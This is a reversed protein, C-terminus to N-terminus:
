KLAEKIRQELKAGDEARFGTHQYLVRGQADLLYATPMSPVGWGKALKGEPDKAIYFSAPFKNLFPAILAPNQDVSVAVIVLGQAAYQSQMAQMWPFSLRCPVCWTAWFDVYYLKAPKDSLTQLTKVGGSLLDFSAKPAADGVGLAGATQAILCCVLALWHKVVRRV